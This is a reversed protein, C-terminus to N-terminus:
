RQGCGLDAVQGARRTDVADLDREACLRHEWEEGFMHHLARL